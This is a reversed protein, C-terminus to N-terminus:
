VRELLLHQRNFLWKERFDRLIRWDEPSIYHTLELARRGRVLEPKREQVLNWLSASFKGNPSLGSLTCLGGTRLVRRAESLVMYLQDMRLFELFDLALFLDQSASELPLPHAPDARELASEARTDFGRYSIGTLASPLPGWGTAVRVKKKLVYPMLWAEARALRPRKASWDTGLGLQAPFEM